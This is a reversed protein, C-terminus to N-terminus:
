KNFRSLCKEVDSIDRVLFYEGDSHQLVRRAFEAQNDSQKGKPTKVEFWITTGGIFVLIDAIGSKTGTAPKRFTKKTADFVGVTNIRSFWLKGQNELIQLYDVISRQIESEKM